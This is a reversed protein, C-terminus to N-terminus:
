PFDAEFDKFRSHDQFSEGVPINRLTLSQSDHKALFDVRQM